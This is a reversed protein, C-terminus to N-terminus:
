YVEASIPIKFTEHKTVIQLTEKILGEEAEEPLRILVSLKRLM